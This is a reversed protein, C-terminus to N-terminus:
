EVKLLELESRAVSDEGHRLEASVTCEGRRLAWVPLIGVFVHLTGREIQVSRLQGNRMGVALPALRDRELDIPIELAILLRLEKNSPHPVAQVQTAPTSPHLKVRKGDPTRGVVHLDVYDLVRIENDSENLV